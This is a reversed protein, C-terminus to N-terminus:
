KWKDKWNEWLETWVPNRTLVTWWNFFIFFMTLSTPKYEPMLLMWIPISITMGITVAIAALYIYFLLNDM